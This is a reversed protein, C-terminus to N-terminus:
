RFDYGGIPPGLHYSSFDNMTQGSGYYVGYEVEISVVDSAVITSTVSYTTYGSWHTSNAFVEEFDGSILNDLIYSGYPTATIGVAMNGTGRDYCVMFLSDVSTLLSHKYVTNGIGLEGVQFVWDYTESSKLPAMFGYYTQVGNVSFYVSVKPGCQVSKTFTSGKAGVKVPILGIIRSNSGWWTPVTFEEIAKFLPRNNQWMAYFTDDADKLADFRLTDTDDVSTM